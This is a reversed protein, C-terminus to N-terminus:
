NIVSHKYINILQSIKTITKNYSISNTKDINLNYLNDEICVKIREQYNNNVKALVIENASRLIEESRM